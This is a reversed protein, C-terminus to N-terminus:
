PRIEGSGRCILQIETPSDERELMATVADAATDASHLDYAVHPTSPCAADWCPKVIAVSGSGRPLAASCTGSTRSGGTGWTRSTAWRRARRMTFAQVLEQERQADEDLSGAFVLATM